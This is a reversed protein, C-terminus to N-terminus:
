SRVASQEGGSPREQAPCASDQASLINMGISIM